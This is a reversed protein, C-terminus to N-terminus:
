QLLRGAWKIVIRTVRSGMGFVGFVGFEEMHHVRMLAGFQSSVCCVSIM